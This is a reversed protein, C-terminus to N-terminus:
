NRKGLTELKELKDHYGRFVYEKTIFDFYFTDVAAQLEPEKKWVDTILERWMRYLTDFDLEKQELKWVMLNAVREYILAYNKLIHWSEEVSPNRNKVAASHDLLHKTCASVKKLNGIIEKSAPVQDAHYRFSFCEGIEKLYDAAVSAYVGFAGSLYEEEITEFETAADLLAHGMMYNPFATPFACRNLQCSMIGNLGYQEMAGIDDFLIRALDRQGVNRYQDWMLYYEFSFCDGDFVKKWEQLFRLYLGNDRPYEVHNREYEPLKEPLVATQYSQTYSRFIPAFMMTFRSSNRLRERVPAWLLEYYAIFVIKTSLGCKTMEEDLTNLLKVYLDAPMHAKCADCECFNNFDDALWIHLYDVHPNAQAYAVIERIMAKVADPNSYCLQTNLPKGTFFKREGDIQALMNRQTDPLANSDVEYWGGADIGVAASTWGHGVAHLLMGRKQIQHIIEKQDNRCEERSYSEACILPNGEHSYWRDFFQFGDMFQIFYANYGVKPAWDIIDLVNQVSVAGEITIGRHFYRSCVQKKWQFDDLKMSPIYEGNKGPRLFRCGAQRLLQYVGLLASRPSAAYLIGEGGRIDASFADCLEKRKGELLNECMVQPMPLIKIDFKSTPDMQLWYRRLEEQAFNVTPHAKWDSM